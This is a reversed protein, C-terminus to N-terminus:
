KVVESLHFAYLQSLLPPLCPSYIGIAEAALCRLGGPDKWSTQHDTMESSLPVQPCLSKLLPVLKELLM